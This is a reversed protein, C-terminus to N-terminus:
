LRQPQIQTVDLTITQVHLHSKEHREKVVRTAVKAATRAM